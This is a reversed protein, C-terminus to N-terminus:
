ERNMRILDTLINDLSGNVQIRDIKEAIRELIELEKLRLAVPNDEMVKATNLMSRTANARKIGVKRDWNYQHRDINLIISFNYNYIKEEEINYSFKWKKRFNDQWYGSATISMKREGMTTIFQPLNENKFIQTSSSYTLMSLSHLAQLVSTKGASNKGVLGHLRSNDFNLETSKHSKFNHLILKELM